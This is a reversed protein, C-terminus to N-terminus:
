RARAAAQHRQIRGDGAVSFELPSGTVDLRVGVPRKKDLVRLRLVYRGNGEDSVSELKAGTVKAAFAKTDLLGAGLLNGWRDQPTVEVMMVEPAARKLFRLQQATVVDIRTAVPDFRPRLVQTLFVYRPSHQEAGATHVTITIRYDGAVKTDPVELLYEGPRLKINPVSSKALLPKRMQARPFRLPEAAVQSLAHEYVGAASLPTDAVPKQQLQERTRALVAAPVDISALVNPTSVLPFDIWASLRGSVPKGKHTLRAVAYLKDGAFRGGVIRADVM